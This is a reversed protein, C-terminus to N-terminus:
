SWKTDGLEGLTSRESPVVFRINANHTFLYTILFHCYLLYYKLPLLDTCSPSRFVEGHARFTFSVSCNWALYCVAWRWAISSNIYLSVKFNCCKTSSLLKGSLPCYKHGSKRFPPRGCVDLKMIMIKSSWLKTILLHIISFSEEAM